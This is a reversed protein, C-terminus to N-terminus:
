HLDGLRSVVSLVTEKLVAYEEFTLDGKIYTLYCHQLASQAIQYPQISCIYDLSDFQFLM